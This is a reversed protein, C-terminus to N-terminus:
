NTQENQRNNMIRLLNRLLIVITVRGIAPVYM